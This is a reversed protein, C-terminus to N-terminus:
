ALEELKPSPIRVSEEVLRRLEAELPPQEFLGRDSEFESSETGSKRSTFESLIRRLKGGPRLDQSASVELPSWERPHICTSNVNFVTKYPNNDIFILDKEEWQKGFAEKLLGILHTARKCVLPKQPIEPHRVGPDHCDEAHLSALPVVNAEESLRRILPLANRKQATCWFVIQFSQSLWRLFDLAHPRVFIDFNGVSFSPVAGKTRSTRYEKHILLGNLDCVVVLRPVEEMDHFTM